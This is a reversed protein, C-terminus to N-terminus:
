PAIRTFLSQTRYSKRPGEVEWVARWDPWDTFDYAVTYHDPDCWHTARPGLHHFFRGDAFCVEIGSPGERWLYDRTAAIPKAGDFSLEGAEHYRLGAREQTFRVTGEFRGKRGAQRDDIVRAVRWRGEFEWLRRM